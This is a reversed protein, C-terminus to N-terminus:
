KCYKFMTDLADKCNFHLEYANFVTMRAKVYACHFSADPPMWESPGRAGKSRNTGNDVAMLVNSCELDNFFARKKERSWKWGGAYHAEKLSVVHDIDLDSPDTFVMGTYQCKWKGSAVRCNKEDEFAVPILSEEILVEQRSDQCDGDADIWRGWESRDYPPITESASPESANCSAIIILFSTAKNMNSLEMM